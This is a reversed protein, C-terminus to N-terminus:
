HNLYTMSSKHIKLKEVLEQENLFLDKGKDYLRPSEIEMLMMKRKQEKSIKNVIEFLNAEGTPDTLLSM